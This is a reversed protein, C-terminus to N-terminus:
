CWSHRTLMQDRITDQDVQVTAEEQKMVKGRLSLVGNVSIVLMSGSM